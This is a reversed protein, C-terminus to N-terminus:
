KSVWKSVWKGVHQSVSRSVQANLRHLRLHVYSVIEDETLSPKGKGASFAEKILIRVTVVGAEAKAAAVEVESPKEGTEEM